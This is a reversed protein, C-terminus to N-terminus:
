AAVKFDPLTCEICLKVSDGGCQECSTITAPVMIKHEGHPFQHTMAIERYQELSTETVLNFKM